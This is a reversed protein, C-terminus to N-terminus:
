HANAAITFHAAEAEYPGSAFPIPGPSDRLRKPSVPFRYTAKISYEGPGPFNYGSEHSDDCSIQRSVGLSQGAHLTVFKDGLIVQRAVVGCWPIAKGSGDQIELHIDYNLALVPSVLVDSRSVNRIEFRFVM